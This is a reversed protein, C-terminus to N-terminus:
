VRHSLMIAFFTALTYCPPLFGTRDVEDRPVTVSFPHVLLLKSLTMMMLM